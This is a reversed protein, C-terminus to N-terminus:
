RKLLAAPPSPVRTRWIAIAGYVLALTYLWAFHGLPGLSRASGGLLDGLHGQPVIWGIGSASGLVLDLLVGVTLGRGRWFTGLALYFSTYAVSSAFLVPFTGLLEHALTADGSRHALLLFSGAGLWSAALVLVFGLSWQLGLARLPTFHRDVLASVARQTDGGPAAARAAAAALLPLLLEAPLGAIANSGSRVIAGLVLLTAIAGAVPLLARWSRLMGRLLLAFSM